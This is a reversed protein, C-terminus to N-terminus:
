NDVLSSMEADIAKRWATGESCIIAEEFNNPVIAVKYFYDVTYNVIDQVKEVFDEFKKPKRTERKPYRAEPEATPEHKKEPRAAMHAGEESQEQDNQQDEEPHNDLKRIIPCSVHEAEPVKTNLTVFRKVVRSALFYM